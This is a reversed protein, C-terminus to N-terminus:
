TKTIGGGLRSLSVIAALGSIGAAVYLGTSSGGGHSALSLLLAALAAGSTQGTLRATGLMGSAAGAREPPASTILVRNNPTQFLGFGIGCLLMRWAVDALAPDPPLIAVLICGTGMCVLGAGGLAGAPLRDALRGAIPATIALGATWFSLMVGTRGVSLGLEHQFLFPLSVMALMQAAFSCVSTLISLAFLPSRLLDLPLLPVPLALQRRVFLTAAILGLVAQTAIMPWSAGHGLMSVASILLGFTAANLIASRWDYPRQARYSDPLAKAGLIAATLGIPLNILFLWPWSAVSLILAGITPGFSSSGAILMTNLGMTRGLRDPPVCLRVLAMNVSMIGSAGIGQVMRAATLTLFSDAMACTLSALTFLIIGAVYVQRYGLIEALAAMPLLAMVIVLQYANVIWVAQAPEVQFERALTPLAVNALNGDLVAMSIGCLLAVLAVFRRPTPLGESLSAPM